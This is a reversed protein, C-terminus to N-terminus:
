YGACWQLDFHHLILTSYHDIWVGPSLAVVESDRRYSQSMGAHSGNLGPTIKIGVTGLAHGYKMVM